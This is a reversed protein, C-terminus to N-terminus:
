DRRPTEINAACTDDDYLAQQQVSILEDVIADRELHFYGPGFRETFLSELWVAAQKARKEISGRQYIDSDRKRCSTLMELISTKGSVAWPTGPGVCEDHPWEQGPHTECMMTGDAALFMTQEDDHYDGM